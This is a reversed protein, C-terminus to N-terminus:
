DEITINVTHGSATTGVSINELQLTITAATKGTVTFSGDANQTGTANGGPFTWAYDNVADYEENTWRTAPAFTAVEALSAINNALYEGNPGTIEVLSPLTEAPYGVLPDLDDESISTTLTYNNGTAMTSLQATHDGVRPLFAYRILHRNALDVRADIAARQKSILDTSFTYSDSPNLTLSSTNEAVDSLAQYAIGEENGGIVYYIVPKNLFVTDDLAPTSDDFVLVGQSQVAELMKAVPLEGYTDNGSSFLVLQSLDISDPGASDVLDNDGDISFDYDADSYRGVVELVARHLNTSTGLTQNQLRTVVLDLAAEIAATNSTFGATLEEINQGFAWVVYEQNAITDDASAQAAALYAKAEIILEDFDVPDSTTSLDFVLATRLTVEGGIVRQFTPFSELPEIENDDVTLSFDNLQASAISEMTTSNIPNIFYGYIETLGDGVGHFLGDADFGSFSQYAEYITLPTYSVNTTGGPTPGPTPDPTPDPTGGGTSGGGGFDGGGGNGVGFDSDGSGGCGALLLSPLILSCLLKKRFSM